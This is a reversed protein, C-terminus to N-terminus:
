LIATKLKSKLIFKVMIIFSKGYARGMKFTTEYIIKGDHGYQRFISDRLGRKFYEERWIKGKAYVNGSSDFGVNGSLWKGEKYGDIGCKGVRLGGESFEEYCMDSSSKENPFDEYLHNDSSMANYESTELPLTPRTPTKIKFCSVVALLFLCSFFRLNKM